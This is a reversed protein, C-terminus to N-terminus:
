HLPAVALVAVDMDDELVTAGPWPGQLALGIRSPPSQGGVPEASNSVWVSVDSPLPPALAVDSDAAVVAGLAEVFVAAVSPQFAQGASRPAVIYVSPTGIAMM